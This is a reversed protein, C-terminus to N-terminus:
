HPLPKDVNLLSAYTENNGIFLHPSLHTGGEAEQWRREHCFTVETAPSTPLPGPELATVPLGPETVTWGDAQQSGTHHKAQLQYGTVM